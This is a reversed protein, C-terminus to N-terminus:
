KIALFQGLTMAPMEKMIRFDKVAYTKIQVGPIEANINDFSCATWYCWLGIKGAEIPNADDYEIQLVDDVYLKINAETMIVKLRYWVGSSLSLSGTPTQALTVFPAKALRVNNSGIRLYFLYANEIDNYKFAIGVYGGSDARVDVEYTIDQWASNGAASFFPLDQQYIQKYVNNQIEWNGGAPIWNSAPGDAETFIDVFTDSALGKVAEIKVKYIGVDDDVAIDFTHCYVGETNIETFLQDVLYVNNDPKFYDGTVTAGSFPIDDFKVM